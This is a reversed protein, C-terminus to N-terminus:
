KLVIKFVKAGYTEVDSWDADKIQINGSFVFPQAAGTRLDVISEVGAIDDNQLHLTPVPAGQSSPPDTILVYYTNAKTLSITVSGFAGDNMWGPYILGGLGGMTDHVAPSAWEMFRHMADIMPVTDPPPTGDIRLGLGLAHNWRRRQGLSCIMEKVWFTPEGRYKGWLSDPGRYWWGNCAPIDEMYDHRTRVMGKEDKQRPRLSGSPRNYLPVLPETKIVFESAAIDMNPYKFDYQNNGILVAQPFLERLMKFGGAPGFDQTGDIWFGDIGGIGAYRSKLEELLAKEQKM